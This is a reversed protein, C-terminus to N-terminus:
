ILIFDSSHCMQFMATEFWKPALFFKFFLFFCLLKVGGRKVCQAEVAVLALVVPSRSLNLRNMRKLIASSLRERPEM